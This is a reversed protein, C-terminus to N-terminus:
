LLSDSAAQPLHEVVAVQDVLRDRLCVLPCGLAVLLVLVLKGGCLGLENFGARRHVSVEARELCAGHGLLGACGADSGESLLGFCEFCAGTFEGVLVVLLGLACAAAVEVRQTVAQPGRELVAGGSAGLRRELGHDVAYAYM